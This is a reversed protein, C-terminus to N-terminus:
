TAPPAVTEPPKKQEAIQENIKNILPAVAGYPMQMLAQNLVALDADDFDLLAM